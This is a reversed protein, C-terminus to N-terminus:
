FSFNGDLLMLDFIVQAMMAEGIVPARLAVCPDHRGKLQFEIEENKKNITEQNLFISPTPKISMTAVIDQGSSIGGLIGGAHNSLFNGDKKIVDNNESGLKNVVALGDGIEVAKVANISMLAYALRADLKEYIPEGVGVPVNSATIKVKGGISDGTKKVELIKQHMLNIDDKIDGVQILSAEIKIQFKELFQKAVAGAIVRTLTERASSRGGGYPNYNKYKKHYTFDAHGPRYLDVIDSYNRSRQDKNKILFTLPTGTTKGEFFGSVIEFKDEEKRQSMLKNQGPKRRDLDAQIKDLDLPFNSPVGDLIVGVLDGHSEGFSTFRYILGFSNSAM